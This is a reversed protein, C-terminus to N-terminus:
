PEHREVIVEAILSSLDTHVPTGLEGLRTQLMRWAADSDGSSIGRLALASRVRARLLLDALAHDPLRYARQLKDLIAESDGARTGEEINHLYQYSIGTAESVERLTQRRASRIFRLARGLDLIEATALANM